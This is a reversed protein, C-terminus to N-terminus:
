DEPSAEAPESLLDAEAEDVFATLATIVQKAAPVTLRITLEEKCEVGGKVAHCFMWAEAGCGAGSSETIRIQGGDYQSGPYASPIKEGFIRFGRQNRPAKEDRFLVPPFTVECPTVKFHEIIESVTVRLFIAEPEDDDCNRTPQYIRTTEDLYTFVWAPLKPIDRLDIEFNLIESPDVLTLNAGIPPNDVTSALWDFETDRAAFFRPALPDERDAWVRVGNLNLDSM